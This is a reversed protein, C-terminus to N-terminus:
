APNKSAGLLAGKFQRAAIEDCLEHWECGTCARRFAPVDKFYQRMLHIHDATMRWRSGIDLTIGLCANVAALALRDRETTRMYHCHAACAHGENQLPACLMDPGEVIRMEEGASLRTATETMSLIFAPSYGRGIYTLLCLLHHGRLRITESM